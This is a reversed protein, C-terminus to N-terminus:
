TTLPRKVGEPQWEPMFAEELRRGIAESAIGRHPETDMDKLSHGVLRISGTPSTPRACPSMPQAYPPATKFSTESVNRPMARGVQAQETVDLEQITPPEPSNSGLRTHLEKIEEARSALQDKRSLPTDPTPCRPRYPVYSHLQEASRHRNGLNQRPGPFDPTGYARASNRRVFSGNLEARNDTPSSNPGPGLAIVSPTLISNSDTCRKEGANSEEPASEPQQDYYKRHLHLVIRQRYYWFLFGLVLFLAALCFPLVIAIVLLKQSSHSRAPALPFTTKATVTTTITVTATQPVLDEISQRSWSTTPTPDIYIYSQLEEAFYYVENPLDALWYEELYSAVSYARYPGGADNAYSSPAVSSFVSWISSVSAAYAADATPIHGVEAVLTPRGTLTTSVLRTAVPTMGAM